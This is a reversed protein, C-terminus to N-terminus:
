YGGNCQPNEYVAVVRGSEDTDIAECSPGLGAFWSVIWIVAMLLFVLYVCADWTLQACRILVAAVM